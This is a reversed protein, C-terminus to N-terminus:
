ASGQPTGIIENVFADVEDNAAYLAAPFPAPLYHPNLQSLTESVFRAPHCVLGQRLVQPPLTDAHYQCVGELTPRKRFIEELGLEYEILKGFDGKPGFEWTMDGSAWLGAFGDELARSVAEDLAKLMRDPIFVGNDLHAQDSSLVLASKEVEHVVDVGLAALYSRLGAVMPPSNLYLCRHNASLKARMVRALGDLQLSPSGAYIMCRHRTGEVGRTMAIMRFIKLWRSGAVFDGDRFLKDARLAAVNDARDGFEMRLQKVEELLSLEDRPVGEGDERMSRAACMGYGRLASSSRM